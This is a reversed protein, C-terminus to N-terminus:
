RLYLLKRLTSQVEPNVKRPKGGEMLEADAMRRTVETLLDLIHGEMNTFVDVLTQIFFSGDDENRYAIYGEVTAFVHLADTFTPLKPPQKESLLVTGGTEAPQVVEGADKQEGRCAQVIFVKPKGRLAQCNENNLLTFLKDLEITNSDIGQLIGEEGHAMLVVFCCSIPDKTQDMDDRFKELEEWFGKAPINRRVTSKFGLAEYMQELAKVDTESGARNKTICLTLALRADSMDYADQDTSQEAESSM